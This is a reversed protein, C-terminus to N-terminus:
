RYEEESNIRSEIGIFKQYDPLLGANAQRKLPKCIRGYIISATLEWPPSM